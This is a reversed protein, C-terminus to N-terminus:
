WEDSLILLSSMWKNAPIRAYSEDWCRLAKPFIQPNTKAVYLFVISSIILEIKLISVSLWLDLSSARSAWGASIWVPNKLSKYCKWHMRDWDLRHGNHKHSVWLKWVVPTVTGMLNVPLSCSPVPQLVPPLKGGCCPVQPPVSRLCCSRAPSVGMVKSPGLTILPAEELFCGARLRWLLLQTFSGVAEQFGGYTFSSEFLLWLVRYKKLFVGLTQLLIILFEPPSKKYWNEPQVSPSVPLLPWLLVTIGSWFM